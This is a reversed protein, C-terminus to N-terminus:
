SASDAPPAEDVSEVAHASSLSKGAPQVEGTIPAKGSAQGSQAERGTAMGSQADRPKINEKSKAQAQGFGLTGLFLYAGACLVAIEYYRIKM